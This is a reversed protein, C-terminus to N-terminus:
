RIRVLSLREKAQGESARILLHRSDLPYLTFLADKGGPAILKLDSDLKGDTAKLLYARDGRQAIIRTDDFSQIYIQHNVTSTEPIEFAWIQKGTLTEVGTVQDGLVYVLVSDKTILQHNQWTLSALPTEWILEGLNRDLAILRKSFVGDDKSTPVYTVAFVQNANSAFQYDTKEIEHNLEFSWERVFTAEPYNFRFAELKAMKKKGGPFSTMLQDRDAFLHPEIVGSHHAGIFGALAKEKWAGGKRNLFRIGEEFIIVFWDDLLHFSRDTSAQELLENMMKQHNGGLGSRHPFTLGMVIDHQLPRQIFPVSYSAVFDGTEANLEVIKKVGILYLRNGDRTLIPAQTPLFFESIRFDWRVRGDQVNLGKLFAGDYTVIIKSGVAAKLDSIRDTTQWVLDGDLGTIVESCRHSSATLQSLPAVVSIFSLWLTWLRM